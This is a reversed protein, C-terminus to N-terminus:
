PRALARAVMKFQKNSLAHRSSGEYTEVAENYARVREALTPLMSFEAILQPYCVVGNVVDTVLHRGFAKERRAQEEMAREGALKVKRRLGQIGLAMAVLTAYGDGNGGEIM